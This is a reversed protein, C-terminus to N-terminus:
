SVRRAHHVVAGPVLAVHWGDLRLRFMLEVDELLIFLRDDFAGARALAATRLLVAAGCAGFVATPASPARAAPGGRERDFVGPWRSLGIGLSDIRTPDDLAALVPQAAGLSPEAEAHAVLTELAGPTLRADNNLLFVYRYGHAIAAQIGANCGGAFGLNGGNRVYHVAPFRARVAAETGDTSGNDAVFVADAATLEPQLAALCALTQERDDFTLVVVAVRRDSAHGGQIADPM